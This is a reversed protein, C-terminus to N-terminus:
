PKIITRKLKRSEVISTDDRSRDVSKRKKNEADYWYEEHITEVVNKRVNKLTVENVATGNGGCVGGAAAGGGQVRPQRPARPQRAGGQVVVAPRAGVGQFGVVGGGQVPALDQGIRAM